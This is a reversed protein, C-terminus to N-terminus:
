ERNVVRFFTAGDAKYIPTVDKLNVRTALLGCRSCKLDIYSNHADSVIQGAPQSLKHGKDTVDKLSCPPHAM